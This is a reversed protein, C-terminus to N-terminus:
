NEGHKKFVIKKQINYSVIYLLFDVPLKLLPQLWEANICETIQTLSSLGLSIFHVSLTSTLLLCVALIYYKCMVWGVNGDGQDFIRRNICFNLFSSVIRASVMPVATALISTEGFHKILWYHMLTFLVWDLAYCIMSSGLFRIFASTFLYKFILLYIKASDRFPRFHSTANDDIYVTTIKVESYTLNSKRLQLLVNTEYEYRDGSVALMLSILSSPIARLGTQTDSIRLGVFIKFVASTCCNGFRSRWPVDPASFDRVGLVVANTKRMEECVALIDGACHQGDGDATVVGLGDRNESYWKMATKLAAGKGRNIEHVLVTCSSHSRLEDFYSNYKEGGGDDVVIIDEFGANELSIVTDILKEDPKYSPLIVSIDKM